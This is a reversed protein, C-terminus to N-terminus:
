ALQPPASGLDFLRSMMCESQVKKLHHSALQLIHFSHLKKWSKDSTKFRQRAPFCLIEQLIKLECPKRCHTSTYAHPMLIQMTLALKLTYSATHMCGIEEALIAATGDCRLSSLSLSDTKQLNTSNMLRTIFDRKASCHATM